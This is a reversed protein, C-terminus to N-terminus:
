CQRQILWVSHLSFLYLLNYNFIGLIYKIDQSNHNGMQKHLNEFVTIIIDSKKARDEFM